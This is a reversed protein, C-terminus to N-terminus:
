SRPPINVLQSPESKLTTVSASATASTTIMMKIFEYTTWCIATSPANAVIRAKVGRTFGMLGHREYIIKFAGGLGSVQRIAADASLGRTQLLTKAVDLPNTLLSAVSGSIAGAAIHSKPDYTGSPNFTKRMYEYTAFQVSQYPASMLLTTPYSVYFAGIGETRLVNLATGLLGRNASCIQMRQKIVDFPTSFGDHAVTALIGAAAHSMHQHTSSDFRHFVDKFHEYVSFYLAHAPGAGLVVSSVGRWLAAFGETTYIRALSQSIGSYLQSSSMFQMRTKIADIPYTVTHETIGALAGALLNVKVSSGPLSEYDYDGDDIAPAPASASSSASAAM